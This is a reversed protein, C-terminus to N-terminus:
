IMMIFVVQLSALREGVRVVGAIVRVRRKIVGGSRGERLSSASITVIVPPYFPGQTTTLIFSYGRINASVLAEVAALVLIM